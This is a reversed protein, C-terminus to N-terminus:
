QAASTSEANKTPYIFNQVLAKAEELNVDLAQGIPYPLEIDQYGTDTPIRLQETEYGVYSMANRALFGIDDKTLNTKVEPAFESAVDVLKFISSANVKTMLAEIMKRQRNTRQFDSDLYRIRSYVLALDGNLTNMGPHIDPSTHKKIYAAEAETVEIDVGDLRDIISVFSDFDVMVYANIEVGFHYEITDMVLQPGGLKCAANMKDKEYGPIYLYIDRMFSTMKIKKNVKDMSILMMTDSRPTEEGENLKDVGLLLVNYVDPMSQLTNPNVYSNSNDEKDFDLKNIIGNATSTIIIAVAALIAIVAVMCSILIRKKKKKKKQGTAIPENNKPPPAPRRAIPIGADEAEPTRRPNPPPVPQGAPARKPEAPKAAPTDQDSNENYHHYQKFDSLFKDKDDVFDGGNCLIGMKSTTIISYKNSFTM